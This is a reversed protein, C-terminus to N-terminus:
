LNKKAVEYLQEALNLMGAKGVCRALQENALDKFMKSGNEEEEDSNIQNASSLGQKMINETLLSEFEQCAKKLQKARPTNDINNVENNKKTNEISKQLINDLGSSYNFNDLMISSSISDISM